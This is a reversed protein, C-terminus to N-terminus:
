SSRWSLATRLGDPTWLEATLLHRPLDTVPGLVTIEKVLRRGDARSVPLFTQRGRPAPKYLVAGSNINSIRVLSGYQHLVSHTSLTLVLAPQERYVAHLKLLGQDDPFFFVMLNLLRLWDEVSMGDTLASALKGRHLPKQDRLVAPGLGPVQLPVQKLRHGALMAEAQEHPLGARRVLEQAPLLGHDLVAPWAGADALHFLRPYRGVLDTPTM